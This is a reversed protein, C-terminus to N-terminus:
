SVSSVKGTNMKYSHVFGFCKSSSFELSEYREEYLYSYSIQVTMM